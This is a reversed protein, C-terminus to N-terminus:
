VKGEKQPGLRAKKMVDGVQIRGSPTVRVQIFHSKSEISVVVGWKPNSAIREVKAPGWEFGYWFQPHMPDALVQRALTLNQRDYDAGANRIKADSM